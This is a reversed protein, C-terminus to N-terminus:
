GVRHGGETRDGVSWELGGPRVTGLVGGVDGGPVQRGKGMEKSCGERVVQELVKGGPEGCGQGQSEM